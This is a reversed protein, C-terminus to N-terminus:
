VLAPRATVVIEGLPLPWPYGRVPRPTVWRAFRAFPALPPTMRELQETAYDITMPKYAPQVTVDRYGALDLLRRITPPTFYHVHDPPAYYFWASGMLRAAFSAVNPLTLALIGDARLWGRVQRAFAVPDLLHEIVDFATVVALPAAPVFREVAGHHVTLGRRRAEAVAVGSLELGEAALGAAAAAAVFGGTSCGVDLWPGVPAHPRVQALHSQAIAARVDAAAAFTAYGGARYSEDHHATLEELTPLPDISVLSCAECRVFDWGRKRFVLTRRSEGCLRCSETPPSAASPTTEAGM